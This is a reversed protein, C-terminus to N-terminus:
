YATTQVLHYPRDRPDPIQGLLWLRDNVDTACIEPRRKQITSCIREVATITCARIEVELRGGSELQERDAVKQDLSESYQLIAYRRLVQPIKYDACATLTCRDMIRRGIPSAEMSSLFSIDSALLQARKFFPITRGDYQAEDQFHGFNETLVNVLNEASFDAAELVADFSGSFSRRITSGLENLIAVRESRLPIPVSNRTIRSFEALSLEELVSPNLLDVGSRISRGLCAILAWTGNYVAGEVKVCWRPRSWYCFSISDLVFLFALRKGLPLDAVRFPADELWHRFEGQGFESCFNHMRQDDIFVDHARSVVFSAAERVSRLGSREYAEPFIM